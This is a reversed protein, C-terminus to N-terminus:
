ISWLDSILSYISNTLYVKPHDILSQGVSQTDDQLLGRYSVYNRKRCRWFMNGRRKLTERVKEVASSLPYLQLSTIAFEEDAQSPNLTTFPPDHLKQMSENRQFNGDFVWCTLPLSAFYQNTILWDTVQFARLDANSKGQSGTVVITGPEQTINAAYPYLAM